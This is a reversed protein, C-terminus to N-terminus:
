IQNINLIPSEFFIRNKTKLKIRIILLETSKGM